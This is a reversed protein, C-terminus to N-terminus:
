RATEREDTEPELQPSVEIDAVEALRRRVAEVAAAAKHPQTSGIDGTATLHEQGCPCTWRVVIVGPELNLLALIDSYGILTRGHHPCDGVMM